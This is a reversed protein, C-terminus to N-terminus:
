PQYDAEFGKLIPESNHLIRATSCDPGAFIVQIEGVLPRIPEQLLGTELVKRLQFTQGEVVGKRTGATLFIFDEENYSQQGAEQTGGAVFCTVPHAPLPKKAQAQKWRQIETDYAEVKDGEKFPSFSQVVEVQYRQRQVDVVKVIALNQVQFGLAGSHPEELPLDARYVVLLDDPSLKIQDSDTEIYTRKATSYSLNYDFSGIVHAIPSLRDPNTIYGAKVFYYFGVNDSIRVRHLAPAAEFAVGVTTGGSTTASAPSTPVATPPASAPSATSTMSPATSAGPTAPAAIDEDEQEVEITAARLPPATLSAAVLAPLVVNIWWRRNIPM